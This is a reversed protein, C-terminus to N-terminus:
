NQRRRTKIFKHGVMRVLSLIDLKRALRTIAEHRSNHFRLNDIKASDTMKRFLAGLQAGNIDFCTKSDRNLKSLRDIAATSLPVERATRNKTIPLGAVRLDTDVRSWELGVIEGAPM